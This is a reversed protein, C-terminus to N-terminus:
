IIKSIKGGFTKKFINGGFTLCPQSNRGFTLCPQVSKKKFPPGSSFEGTELNYINTKQVRPPLGVWCVKVHLVM